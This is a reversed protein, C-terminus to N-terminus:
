GSGARDLGYGWVWKRFIWTLIIRGDVGLDGLNDREMLNGWLFGTYAEGGGYTSCEGGMENKEIKDGSCFSSYLDNLEEIHLKRWEETLEDRTRGFIRRLVRNEFMSLTREETLTFSWTQCGYLVDPLIITIYIKIKVNKPLLNSSLLYQFSHYCANGSNLRGKTEEQIFNQNKLNKHFSKVM